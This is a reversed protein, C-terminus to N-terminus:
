RGFDESPGREASRSLVASVAVPSDLSAKPVLGQGARSVFSRGHVHDTPKFHVEVTVDPDLHGAKGLRKLEAFAFRSLADAPITPPYLHVVSV